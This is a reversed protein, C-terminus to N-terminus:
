EKTTLRKLADLIEELKKKVPQDMGSGMWYDTQFFTELKKKGIELEEVTLQQVDTQTWEYVSKESVEKPANESM